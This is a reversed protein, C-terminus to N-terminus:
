QVVVEGHFLEDLQVIVKHAEISLKGTRIQAKGYVSINRVPNLMLANRQAKTLKLLSVDLLAKTHEDFLQISKGDANVSVVAGSVAVLRGQYTGGRDAFNTTDIPEYADHAVAVVALVLITLTLRIINM